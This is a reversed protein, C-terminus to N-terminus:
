RLRNIGDERTVGNVVMKANEYESCDYRTGNEHNGCAIGDVDRKIFEIGNPM